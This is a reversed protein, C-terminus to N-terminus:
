SKLKVYIAQRGDSNGTWKDFALVYPFDEINAIRRAMTEPLYDFIHDYEPDAAFRSASQLGSACPVAKGANDICLEPSSSILWDSVEIIRPEPMPLGLLIGLRTAFHESALVRIHQPNNQFKVVYYHGDSARLLHSQSGGRMSRIHQVARLRINM